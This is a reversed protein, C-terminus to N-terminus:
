KGKEEAYDIGEIMESDKLESKVIIYDEENYRFPNNKILHRPILIWEKEGEPYKSELIEILSKLDMSKKVVTEIAELGKAYGFGTEIEKVKLLEFYKIM